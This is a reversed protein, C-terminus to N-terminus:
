FSEFGLIAFKNKSYNKKQKITFETSDQRSLGSFTKFFFFLKQTIVLIFLQDYYFTLGHQEFLENWYFISFM